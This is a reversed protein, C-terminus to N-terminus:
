QVHHKGKAGLKTAQQKSMQENNYLQHFGVGGHAYDSLRGNEALEGWIESGDVAHVKRAPPKFYKKVGVQPFSGVQSININKLHTSVM